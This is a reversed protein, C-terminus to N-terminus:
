RKFTKSYEEKVEFEVDDIITKGKYEKSLDVTKEGLWYTDLTERLHYLIWLWLVIDDIFGIPFIVAPILDIPMALYVLGLIVLLKKRKKVNPDKLMFKIAQIRKIIVRFSIYPM